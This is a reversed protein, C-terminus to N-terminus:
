PTYVAETLGTPGAMGGSPAAGGAGGGEVQIEPQRELRAGALLVIGLSPGGTGGAGPGGTGGRGGRGGAGGGKGGSAGFGGEGGPGGDGGAGGAGGAGGTGGRGAFVQSGVFSVVSGSVIVGISGGGGAGGRGGGGGCGGSGGSGGSAGDIYCQVPVTFGGGGGGAGGTGPSAATGDGGASALPAYGESTIGGVPLGVAGPRGASGANGDDGRQGPRANLGPAMPDSAGGAGGMASAVSQGNGGPPRETGRFTPYGGAGAAGGAGNPESTMCTPATAGTPGPPTAGVRGTGCVSEDLHQTSPYGMTGAVGSTGPAGSAGAAGDVGRSARVVVAEFRVGGAANRVRVPTASAGSETPAEGQIQLGSISVPAETGAITLVFGTGRLTTSGPQRMPVAGDEGGSLHRYGGALSLSTPGLTVTEDYVGAEIMVVHRGQDRAQALGERITQCPNQRVLGCDGGDHGTSSVFVTDAAIGDVGDCNSDVGLLDLPDPRLECPVDEGVPADTFGADADPRTDEPPVADQLVCADQLLVRGGPCGHVQETCGGAIPVLLAIWLGRNM